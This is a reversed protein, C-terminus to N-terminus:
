SFLGGGGGGTSLLSDPDNSGGVGRARRRRTLDTAATRQVSLAAATKTTGERHALTAERRLAGLGQEVELNRLIIPIANSSFGASQLDAAATPSQFSNEASAGVLNRIATFGAEETSGGGSLVAAAEEDGALIKEFLKFDKSGRALDGELIDSRFQNAM